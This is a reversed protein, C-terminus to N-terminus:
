PFNLYTSSFHWAGVLVFDLLAIPFHYVLWHERTGGDNGRMPLSVMRDQVERQRVGGNWRIRDSFYHLMELFFIDFEITLELYM